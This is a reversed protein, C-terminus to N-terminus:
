VECCSSSPSMSFIQSVVRSSSSPMLFVSSLTRELREMRGEPRPQGETGRYLVVRGDEENGVEVVVDIYALHGVEDELPDAEFLDKQLLHAGIENRERELSPQGTRSRCSLTAAVKPAPIEVAQTISMPALSDVTVQM